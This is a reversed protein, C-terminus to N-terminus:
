NRHLYTILWDLRKKSIDSCDFLSKIQHKTKKSGQWVTLWLWEEFRDYDMQHQQMSTVRPVLLLAVFFDTTCCYTCCIHPAPGSNCELCPPAPVFRQALISPSCGLTAFSRFLIDPSRPLSTSRCVRINSTCFLSASRVLIDKPCALCSSSCILINWSFVLFFWRGLFLHIKKRRQLRAARAANGAASLPPLTGQAVGSADGGAAVASPRGYRGPGM